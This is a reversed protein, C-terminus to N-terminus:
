DSSGDYWMEGTDERPPPSGDDELLAVETGCLEDNQHMGISILGSHGWHNLCLLAESTDENIRRRKSGNMCGATSFAREAEASMAPCSYVNIAFRSLSPYKARVAERLWYQIPILQDDTELESNLYLTLEDGIQRPLNLKRSEKLLDDMDTHKRKKSSRQNSDLLSLPTREQSSQSQSDSIQVPTAARPRYDKEWMHRVKELQVSVETTTWNVKLYELKGRPDFLMAATYVPSDDLKTYYDDAKAWAHEIAVWFAKSNASEAYEVKLKELQTLIYQISDYVDRIGHATHKSPRGGMRKTFYKLPELMELVENVIAWDDNGLRDTFIANTIRSEVVDECHSSRKSRLHTAHELSLFDDLPERLERACYLM